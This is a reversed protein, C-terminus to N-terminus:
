KSSNNYIASIETPINSQKVYTFELQIVKNINKNVYDEVEKRTMPSSPDHRNYKVGDDYFQVPIHNDDYVVIPIHQVKNLAYLEIICNTTTEVYSGLKVVFDNLPDKSSRKIEMYKMLESNILDINKPDQLWDIVLSRFYNALDTQLPSYYGLNRSDIDYYPHHIWHHSNVYARFLSLNNDVVHQELYEKMDKIPNDANMQVFNVEVSKNGRRKGIKPINEKGFLDNLVKKVTNSNSRIIKQNPRETFRNYDVIDSVFYNGIRLLEMAKLDNSALEESIKNVFTVVMDDTLAIHCEDYAYHCHPSKSCEEKTKHITCVTRDNEVVYNTINPLKSIVHALKDAGGDQTIDQTIQNQNTIQHSLQHSTQIEDEVENNIMQKYKDYLSKDILKYLYMRIKHIKIPKTTRSDNIIQELKAKQSANESKNIYDSFELRFLEYSENYYKDYDVNMIREDINSIYKGKVIDKDISDYLPKNEIVLSLKDLISKEIYEPKVPINGRSKTIIAIVNYKDGKKEDFYVGEPKIPLLKDSLKFLEHIKNLTIDFSDIYKDIAKIIQLSYISGSPRTPVILGDSTIIYKTKNRVDVVQFRPSFKKNKNGIQTLVHYTERATISNGKHVVEDIFSGYCNREYFDRVHEIINKDDKNNWKFIKHLTMNKTLENDKKVMVIPYYNKNEKLLFITEKDPNTFSYIDEINQCLLYFDEKIKEKELTKKIISVRKYFVVINLGKPRLVGPISLISHLIDFDLYNSTKIFEIYRERTGFQTKIDGNNLSIFILDSTDNELINIIKKKMDEITTDLISAVARFFQFDDQKSGYKFFYGTDTRVLYHHRIKKTNDLMGNFYFDLYKPLFGFRGEQIKNTDQLIYLRDGISKTIVKESVSETGTQNLCNQFFERKEKNKSSMPDKKFCCPMCLGNPNTSRTLFGIYFHEGNKEPSCAYHIAEGTLRGDDDFEPLKITTLKVEKGKWKARREYAGTKKNLVYGAKLLESIKSTTYNQPQRKKDNGSNQCSRTWQNQGKEPKFGIRKKDAQTMQKVEKEEKEYDRFEEVKNRRKAINTLEKLKHKLQQREPKKYLYTEIYLYILINMFDIMRDLQDKNRAGSIRIKYNERHKGQVDIGIGPPKYKPINELKKLIKRSLKLNPYRERVKNIENMAREETINFQKAIENALSQDNYEYNRLFYMIRTELRQQNDYKSVRKYRLYTGYKSKDDGKSVKAQRKRPDIVLSVYPYFYRSFESFDNHNMVFKDPLEFKQITNIFAFTFESQEPIEIKVKSNEKNIKKILDEVYIYTKKIDDVTAMDEEKWQTKYEIRGSENLTIAIFQDRGKDNIKVKFSIGYPSNEFWKGLVNSYEDDKLYNMIDNERFKFFITGDPTQYQIFPYRDTQEFENFIRYLDIKGESIRLNVNITSLTIFNERFINKYDNSERVADVVSMIENAMILDGSITDYVSTMKGAEVKKEIGLYDIIYKIDENRIRHFYLKLYVDTINRLAEGDPSYGFGLENYVDIMFIENATIYDEYDYLIDNDDDEFRIKNGYRKINDRLVKLNGRLEEYYRLNNNPEVDINLLENRRIWKQGLMIKELKNQYFYEGWLYQRSPILYSDRDFKPNNKMSVCIRDKIVKFTDSKYIYQETVYFKKYVDKLNEDYMNNDKSIDFEIASRTNKEFITDDNLAKKILSTTKNIDNDYEVDVDKYLQEIEELDLEDDQSQYLPDDFEVMDDEDDNQGGLQKNIQGGSQSHMHHGECTYVADCENCTFVTNCGGCQDIHNNIEDHTKMSINLDFKNCQYEDGCETCKFHKGCGNCANSHGHVDYNNYYSFEGGKQKKISQDKIEENTTRNLSKRINFMKTLDEKKYTTYDMDLEDETSAITRGKKATKRMREDRILSEYTYLLKKEILEHQVIHENYWDNGLKEILENKQASSDRVLSITYNLHYNNFFKKYWFKGYFDEMKKIENKSLTTWTTYLNINEIKELIKMLEPKVKGVFIYVGYQVRRNNNKYKWIIKIPDNM